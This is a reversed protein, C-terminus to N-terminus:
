CTKNLIVEIASGRIITAHGKKECQESTHGYKVKQKVDSKIHQEAHSSTHNPLNAHPKGKTGNAWDFPVFDVNNWKMWKCWSIWYFKSIRQTKTKSQIFSIMLHQHCMSQTRNGEDGLGIDSWFKSRQVWAWVSDCARAYAFSSKTMTNIQAVSLLQGHKSLHHLSIFVEVFFRVSKGVFSVSKDHPENTSLSSFSPVVLFFDIEQNFMIVIAFSFPTLNPKPLSLVCSFSITVWFFASVIQWHCM